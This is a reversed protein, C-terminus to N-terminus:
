WSRFVPFTRKVRVRDRKQSRGPSLRQQKVPNKKRLLRRKMFFIIKGEVEMFSIQIERNQM